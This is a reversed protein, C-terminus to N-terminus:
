LGPRAQSYYGSIQLKALLRDITNEERLDEGRKTDDTTLDHKTAKKTAAEKEGLGRCVTIFVEVKTKFTAYLNQLLMKTADGEVKGSVELQAQRSFRLILSFIEEVLKLVPQQRKRLLLTQMMRDLMQEHEERVEDPSLVRAERSDIDDKLLDSQVRDLWSEFRRWPREVGTDFFYTSISSVFHQAEFRFRLWTEDVDHNQNLRTSTDRFLQGVVYLMRLVRLLLKFIKDYKVLVVPPIIPSLPAPAKYSLRLFDLAELSSPDLCRDIEEPSLDRVAFSLDGPLKNSEPGAYRSEPPASSPYSENLVGMLALRLESSAPPWSDRGNLRLGMVGGNRAVGAQREATELDPDFLAHSLRSCFLGNGLLQFQKQVGLHERLNHAGFLLKMYERNVIRAQVTVLPGFSHLPILSWHPTFDAVAQQSSEDDNFLRKRLLSSLGDEEFVASPPQNLAKISALLRGELQEGDHGFCQLGGDGHASHLGRGEADDHISSINATEDQIKEAVSKAYDWVEDQLQGITKWDFCWELPPPKSSMILKIHCLPHEPHHTRLLRLNRGTEFLVLAVEGPVFGPMRTEDLIYDPDEAEFGFDDMMAINDVRVFSKGPGEKTIPIGEEAKVGVWKEAFDTWPESARSLVERMIESLLADGHELNQTEDFILSLMAEDTRSRSVKAIMSKFYTLVSRVPQVLSQLQLLSRVQRGREGLQRQVALLLVDVAKALAVRVASPHTKYTLQVYSSLFRTTKGCELCCAQLGQLVEASYGSIRMSELDPTFCRKETSWTFFASGRGLALALLATTYPSSQVISHKKNGIGLPDEDSVIAADYVVPGTETIFLPSAPPIEPMTFADWTKFEASTAPPVDSHQWIEDFIDLDPLKIDHLPEPIFASGDNKSDHGNLNDFGLSAPLKFFGAAARNITKYFPQESADIKANFFHDNPGPSLKLWQSTQGFDPFAFVDAPDEEAM